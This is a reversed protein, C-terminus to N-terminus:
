LSHRYIVLDVVERSAALSARSACSSLRSLTRRAVSSSIAAALSTKNTKAGPPGEVCWITFSVNKFFIFFVATSTFVARPVSTSESANNFANSAPQIYAAPNSTTSPSGFIPRSWGKTFCGLYTGRNDHAAATDLNTSSTGDQRVNSARRGVRANPHGLQSHVVEKTSQEVLWHRCFQLYGGQRLM